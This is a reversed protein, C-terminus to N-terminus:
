IATTDPTLIGFVTQFMSYGVFGYLRQTGPLATLMLFNGSASGNKKLAGIVTSGTITVSYASGIDSSGIMAAIGTYVILSNVGM